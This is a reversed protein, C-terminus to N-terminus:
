YDWASIYKVGYTGDSKKWSTWQGSHLTGATFLEGGAYFRGYLDDHWTESKDIKKTCYTWGTSSPSFASYNHRSVVAPEFPGASCFSGDPSLANEERVWAVWRDSDVAKGSDWVLRLRWRVWPGDFSTRWLVDFTGWVEKGYGYTINGKVKASYDTLLVACRSKTECWTDDGSGGAAPLLAIREEESELSVRRQEWVPDARTGANYNLSDAICVWAGDVARTAESVCATTDTVEVAGSVPLIDDTTYSAGATTVLAAFLIGSLLPAMTTTSRLKQRM